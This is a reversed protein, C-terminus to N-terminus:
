EDDGAPVITGIPSMTLAGPAFRKMRASGGGRPPAFKKAVAIRAGVVTGATEARRCPMEGSTLSSLGMLRTFTNVSLSPRVGGGTEDWVAEVGELWPHGLAEAATYRIAPDVVMLREILGRCLVSVSPPIEYDAHAIQEYIIFPNNGRWPLTGVVMVYLM